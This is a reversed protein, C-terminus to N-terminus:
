QEWRNMEVIDDYGMELVARLAQVNGIAKSNLQITADGSADTFSGGEWGKAYDDARQKLAARFAITVPHELWEKFEAETPLQM